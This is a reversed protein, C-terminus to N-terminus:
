TLRGHPWIYNPWRASLTFIPKGTPLSSAHVEVTAGEDGQGGGAGQPPAGHGGGLDRHVVQRGAPQGHRAEAQGRQHQQDGAARVQPGGEARGHQGPAGDAVAARDEHLVGPDHPGADAVRRQQDPGRRHQDRDDGRQGEAGHGAGHDPQAVRDRQGPDAQHGRHAGLAVRAQGSVAQDQGRQQQGGREGHGLGPQQGAAVRDRDGGHLHQAGRQGHQGHGGQGLSQGM